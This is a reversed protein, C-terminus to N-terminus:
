SRGLTMRRNTPSTFMMLNVVIRGSSTMCRRSFHESSPRRNARGHAVVTSRKASRGSGSASPCSMNATRPKQATSFHKFSIPMVPKDGYMQERMWALLTRAENKPFEM